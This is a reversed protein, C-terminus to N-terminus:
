PRRAWSRTAPAPRPPCRTADRRRRDDAAPFTRCPARRRASRRGAAITADGGASDFTQTKTTPSACRARRSARGTTPRPVAGGRTAGSARRRTPRSAAAARRRHGESPARPVADRAAGVTASTAASARARIASTTPSSSRSRPARISRARRRASACRRTPRSSTTPGPTTSSSRRRARDLRRRLLGLPARDGRRDDGDAVPIATTPSARRRPAGELRTIDADPDVGIPPTTSGRRPGAFYLLDVWSKKMVGARAGYPNATARLRAHAREARAVRALDSWPILPAAAAIEM